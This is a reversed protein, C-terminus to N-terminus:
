FNFYFLYIFIFIIRLFIFNGGTAKAIKRMDRKDVRRIGICGNEVLYKNAVDDIGKTTLIVNAGAGIIKM